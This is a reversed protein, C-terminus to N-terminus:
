QMERRALRILIAVVAVTGRHMPVHHQDLARFPAAAFNPEIAFQDAFVAHKQRLVQLREIRRIQFLRRIRLACDLATQLIRIAASAPQM